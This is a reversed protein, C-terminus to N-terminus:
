HMASRKLNEIEKLFAALRMVGDPWPGFGSAADFHGAAGADVLTAGWNRALRGAEDFACFPDDRSAVLLAPFPLLADSAPHFGEPITLDEGGVAFYKRSAQEEITALPAVLMAGTIKGAAMSSAAHAAALVGLGHAVLFVPQAAGEVASAIADKWESLVPKHLDGMALMRATSLKGQWRTQWHDPGAGTWDPIMLLDYDSVAM